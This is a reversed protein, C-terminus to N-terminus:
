LKVPFNTEPKRDAATELHFSVTFQGDASLPRFDAVVPPWTKPDVRPIGPSAAVLAHGLKILEDESGIIM